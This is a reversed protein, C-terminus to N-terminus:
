TKKKKSFLDKFLQRTTDKGVKAISETLSIEKPCVEKCNQSNGCDQIGGEQMLSNIRKSKNKAIPHDSFLRGQSISSAGIFKTNKNYQPCAELCCGCTMCTTLEYLKDRTKSDIKPGFDDADEEDIWANVKKLSKFMKSRDVILDKILPFKSLPAITILNNKKSILDKILTTCAQRPKANILMSCAGCVEELCGVEFSVSSVKKGDKTIPKKQIDLLASVINAGEKFELAFEEFYQNNETGRLIKLIYKM